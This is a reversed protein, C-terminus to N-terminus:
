FKLFIMLMKYKKGSNIKKEGKKEKRGRQRERETKRDEGM